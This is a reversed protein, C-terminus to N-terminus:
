SGSPHPSLAPTPPTPDTCQIVSSQISLFDGVEVKDWGGAGCVCLQRLIVFPFIKHLYSPERSAPGLRRHVAATAPYGSLRGLPSLQIIWIKSNLKAACYVFDIQFIIGLPSHLFLERLFPIWNRAWFIFALACLKTSFLNLHELQKLVITPRELWSELSFQQKQWMVLAATGWWATPTAETNIARCQRISIPSYDLRSQMPISWDTRKDWEFVSSHLSGPRLASLGVTWHHLLIFVILCLRGTHWIASATFLPWQDAEQKIQHM